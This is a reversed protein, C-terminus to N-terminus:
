PCLKEGAQVPDAYSSGADPAVAAGPQAMNLADFIALANDTRRASWWALRPSYSNADVLERPIYLCDVPSPYRNAKDEDTFLGAHNLDYTYGHGQARWWVICGDMWGRHVDDKSCVYYQQSM